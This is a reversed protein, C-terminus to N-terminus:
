ALSRSIQIVSEALDDLTMFDIKSNLSLLKKSIAEREEPRKRGAIVMCRVDTVEENKVGVTSLVAHRHQSLQFLWDVAQNFAHELPEKAHGEVNKREKFMPLSPKELEVLWLIGRTDLIGFDAYREGLISPKVIIRRAHFRALMVPHSEIFEQVPKEDAENTILSRFATVTRLIEEHGYRREFPVAIGASIRDRGLTAHLNERIYKLSYTTSGCRCVFSDPIDYQWRWGEGELGKSHNIGTYVRFTSDCKTCGLRVRTYKMAEVDAEIARIEDASLPSRAEYTFVVTGLHLETSGIRAVVDMPGPALVVADPPMSATVPMWRPAVGAVPPEEVIIEITHRMERTAADRIEVDVEGGISGITVRDVMFVWAFEAIPAPYFFLNKVLSLRYITRTEAPSGVNREGEVKDAMGLFAIPCSPIGSQQFSAILAAADMESRKLRRPARIVKAM